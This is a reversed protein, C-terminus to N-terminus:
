WSDKFHHWAYVPKLYRRRIAPLPFKRLPTSMITPIKSGQADGVIKSALLKGTYSGLAVGNGHYAMGIWTKQMGDLPGAYPVLNRNLCLMGSWFYPTEVQSWAPFMQEFDQRARVRSKAMDVESGSTGGRLGFLFQRNPMLRFYHLMTRTDWAMLDSWWGQSQLESETLPRTVLINSISPLFKGDLGPLWNDHSYGNSAIVLNDAEVMGQETRVRHKSGSREVEIASSNGFIMGSAQILQSTLTNVYKRPNIAFGIPMHVAGHFEPGYLGLEKLAGKPHVTCNVDFQRKLYDAEEHLSQMDNPRHAMLCEGDSHRDANEETRDLNDRVLEIAAIQAHHFEQTAPMGYKKVLEPLELKAGGICVFGGNRGSAGFGPQEADLVCVSQQYNRTLELACNLGTFGAGIVVTDVQLNEKLSEFQPLDATSNWYCDQIPVAGYATPHFIKKM